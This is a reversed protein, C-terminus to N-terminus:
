AVLASKLESFSYKQDGDTDYELFSQPEPIGAGLLNELEVYSLKGNIGQGSAQFLEKLDSETSIGPLSLGQKNSRVSRQSLRALAPQSTVTDSVPAREGDNGTQKDGEPKNTLAQILQLKERLNSIPSEGQDTETAVSANEKTQIKSVLQMENELVVVRQSINSVSSDVNHFKLENQKQYHVVTANLDEFSNQLYLVEQTIHLGNGTTSSTPSPQGDKASLKAMDQQLTEVKKKQEEAATQMTEVDHHVSTLTSGLTAVSKQLEEMTNPLNILDSASKLNAKLHNVASTLQAIQKNMETINNWLKSLGSDGNLIENLQKKNTVLDEKIKPIDQLSNTQGSEMTRFKDKLVDISDKLAVQMWVLGVCTVVCATLVVFGCLPYCVRCCRMLEGRGLRGHREGLSSYEEQETDTDSDSGPPETRLLRHGSGKKPKKRGGDGALGILANLEKRKKMKKHPTPPAQPGASLAGSGM